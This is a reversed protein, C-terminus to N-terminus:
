SLWTTNMGCYASGSPMRNMCVTISTIRIVGLMRHSRAGPILADEVDIAVGSEVARQGREPCGRGRKEASNEGHNAHHFVRAHAVGQIKREASFRLQSLRRVNRM